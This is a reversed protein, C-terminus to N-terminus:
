KCPDLAVKGVPTNDVCIKRFPTPVSDLDAPEQDLWLRMLSGRTKVSHKTELGEHYSIIPLHQFVVASSLSTLGDNDSPWHPVPQNKLIFKQIVQRSTIGTISTNATLGISLPGPIRITRDELPHM